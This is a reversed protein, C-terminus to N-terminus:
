AQYRWLRWDGTLANWDLVNGDHMVILQQPAQISFWNGIDVPAGPLVDHVSTADYNWLRWTGDAPVWDLVRGDTMRILDHGSVTV